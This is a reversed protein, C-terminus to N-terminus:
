KDVYEIIFINKSEDTIKYRNDSRENVIWVINEGSLIVWAEKKDKLSFKRDTFYDSLKKKGNMGFPIFWDGAKWRRMILPFKLKDADAYLINKKKEIKVPTKEKRLNFRVPFTIEKSEEEILYHEDSIIDSTIKELIFDSRDKIVRYRDSLFVKGPTSDMSQFIDEITSSTFGLPSLLEFLVSQPSATKKLMPINIKDNIFVVDIYERISESYIKEAESINKSTRIISEKVSPNVVELKPIVNLRLYNRLYIDQDNTSDTVYPLEREIIYDEIESRSVTLLPRVVYGNRPSIGSLGKIGTGRILNLLVTEVSDDRHHAVAIADAEYQKRLIEFWEYRLERAAMEISIKRDEAYGTTDFDISTFPIDTNKCWKRVFDADRDSEAGRLHFNCHAAICRYELLVLLDLLVMSDMGGSLGVIVKANHPLLKESQIFKQVRDIM